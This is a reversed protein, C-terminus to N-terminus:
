AVPLQVRYPNDLQGVRQGVAVSRADNGAANRIGITPLNTVVNSYLVRAPLLLDLKGAYQIRKQM